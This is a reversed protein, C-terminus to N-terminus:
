HLRRIGVNCKRAYTNAYTELKMNILPSAQTADQKTSTGTNRMRKEGVYRQWEASLRRDIGM